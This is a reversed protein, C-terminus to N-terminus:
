KSFFREKLKPIVKDWLIYLYPAGQNFLFFVEYILFPINTPRIGTIFLPFEMFFSEICGILFVYGLIKLNKSKVLNTGYIIVLISYGIIVNAIWAIIQTDMHRVTHVITNDIPLLLSLLPTTMWLGFFLTTFLLIEKKDRKEINEFMIWLWTFAYLSYSLTMMFDAGSKLFFYPGLPHPMQTGGIWYERIFTGSPYNAGATINWWFVADIVYVMIGFLFGAKLASWKKYKIVVLLWLTLLIADIYIYDYEFTRAADTLSQLIM